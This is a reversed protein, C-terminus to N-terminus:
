QDKTKKLSTLAPNKLRVRSALHSCTVAEKNGTGLSLDHHRRRRGLCKLSGIGTETEERAVASIRSRHHGLLTAVLEIKHRLLKHATCRSWEQVQWSASLCNEYNHHSQPSFM